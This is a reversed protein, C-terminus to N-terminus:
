TTKWIEDVLGYNISKESNLWLDHKVGKLM